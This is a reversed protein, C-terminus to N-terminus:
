FDKPLHGNNKLWDMQSLTFRWIIDGREDQKFDWPALIVIDNDRIWIKRKLKGRIRGMRTKGDTCKVMIHDSGLLKVVRGLLEGEQPLKIEKLQSENLVKRKGLIIM